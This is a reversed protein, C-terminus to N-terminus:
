GVVDKARSVEDVLYVISQHSIGSHLSLGIECTRSTSYGYRVGEPLQIKLNRLGHENLEPFSFGRDGAFGCCNTELVVVKTACKEALEVLKNELGMKKMSCVPFVTITEQMPTIELNSLLHDLIFEVPEYLKLGSKMNEKMTFLCPSMDCLVPYKGNESANLLAVELENSNKIGAETYGKSSFAMGCCLSNLNEPYIVEFGGKNLLELMKESLQKEKRNEKSVGMARNICSPFYVVKKDTKAKQLQSTNIKKAGHPMFPNWLPIRNGSLTRLGGSIGKMIPTGLVTHFFGVISLAGRVSSTVGSMHDAIWVARNQHEGIEEKRLTKILKGTDIKVPCATACLGDTACTENGAYQYSKALSAAIHPEHGSRALSAMERYVVIRQRPTLTLEASVCTPECFGCEICKDIKESAAPIPKLNQLHVKPDNNLIVGPNLLNQPDFIQKIQKMLQYAEHGWEKEVFPAMNRGTGHEAKLSGDYKSVVLDAVDSMFNAYRDVESQSGFDQTFVFHLNGELAHGFIVAERYEWKEFLRHLDLTAEALRAVPFAVDEIIVTTGTKRIAGISPFMGKRIKWLLAYESPISTFEIPIESSIIKITDLIVKIKQNLEDQHLARTEVLIASATPSLTKLYNPVGAQDEVSRLGARDMLEVASVPASKLLSVANCAKEIDPFVMLSSAKFPHEVVTKYSIEAIFGLTGESGIMLHEIIEFPDAFDVLANLSYGTTNKMKFKRAIRGALEANDKVSAAMETIDQILQPHTQSFQHKSEPDSTDLVTGDAFIVRMSAITKYSNEATGCCMGSANNAAIGGIMAADISAPDPGIKRGYRALLSNVKGGTLGPQLSIKLGDSDIKFKTWHNGAIVLVSDSIAQGSLSTGAARFTVPIGLKSSEKLIFSVEEENKAKIVIKPILRYFSADTGFALTHLPDHFIRKTDIESTLQQYLVKYKGSLM